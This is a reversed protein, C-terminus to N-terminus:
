PNPLKLGHHRCAVHVFRELVDPSIWTKESLHVVWALIKELTDCRALEIQYEYKVNITLLEGDVYVQKRLQEEHQLMEERLKKLDKIGDVM